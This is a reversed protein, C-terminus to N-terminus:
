LQEALQRLKDIEGYLVIIDDKRIETTNDPALQTNGDRKIVLVTVDDQCDGLLKCVQQGELGETAKVEVIFQEDGLRIFDQVMPHNLEQAVRLGMDFEPAIIRTAGLKKLIRHEHRTSAKAWVNEIGAERLQLTALITAELDGGIAVVAVDYQGVNLGELCDERTVDLIVAHTVSEAQENVKEEDKDIGLVDHGLRTLEAAITGGLVGLGVVVIQQKHMM